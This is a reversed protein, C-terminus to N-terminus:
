YVYGYLWVTGAACVQCIQPDSSLSQVTQAPQQTVNKIKLFLGRLKKIICEKSSIKVLVDEYPQIKYLLFSDITLTLTINM